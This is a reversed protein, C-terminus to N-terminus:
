LSADWRRDTCRNDALKSGGAGLGAMDMEGAWERQTWGRQVLHKVQGEDIGQM